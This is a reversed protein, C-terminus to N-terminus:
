QLSLCLPKTKVRDNQLYCLSLQLTSDNMISNTKDSNPPMKNIKIIMVTVNYHDRHRRLEDANQNNAWRDTWACILSFILTKGKHPFDVPSRHIGECLALLASFTETSSTMM